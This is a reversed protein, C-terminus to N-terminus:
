LRNWGTNPTNTKLQTDRVWQFHRAADITDAKDKDGTFDFMSRLLSWTSDPVKLWVPNQILSTYENANGLLDNIDKILTQDLPILIDFLEIASSTHNLRQIDEQNEQPLQAVIDRLEDLKSEIVAPRVVSNLDDWLMDVYCDAKAPIIRLEPHNNTLENIVENYVGARDPQLKLSHCVLEKLAAGGPDNEMVKTFYMAALIRDARAKDEFTDRYASGLFNWDAFSLDAFPTSKGINALPGEIIHNIEQLDLLALIREVVDKEAEVNNPIQERNTDARNYITMYEAIKDPQIKQNSRVKVLFEKFLEQLQDVDTKQPAKNAATTGTTPKQGFKKKAALGVGGAVLGGAVIAAIHARSLTTSPRYVVAYSNGSKYVGTLDEGAFLRKKAKEYETQSLGLVTKFFAHCWSQHNRAKDGDHRFWAGRDYVWFTVDAQGVAQTCVSANNVRKYPKLFRLLDSESQARHM